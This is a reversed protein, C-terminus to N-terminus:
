VWENRARQISIVMYIEGYDTWGRVLLMPLACCLRKPVQFSSVPASRLLCIRRANLYLLSQLVLSLKKEAYTKHMFYEDPTSVYDIDRRNSLLHAKECLLKCVFAKGNEGDFVVVHLLINRWVHHMCPVRMALRWTHLVINHSVRVYVLNNHRSCTCRRPPGFLHTVWRSCFQVRIIMIIWLPRIRARKVLSTCFGDLFIKLKASEATAAAEDTRNARVPPEGFVQSTSTGTRMWVGAGNSESVRIEIM